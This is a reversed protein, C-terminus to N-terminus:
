DDVVSGRPQCSEWSSGGWRWDVSSLVEGTIELTGIQDHWEGVSSRWWSALEGLLVAQTFHSSSSPGGGRWGGVGGRGGGCGCGRYELWIWGKQM